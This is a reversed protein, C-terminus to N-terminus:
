RNNDDRGSRRSGGMGWRSRRNEEQKQFAEFADTSLLTKLEEDAEERVKEMDKQIQAYDRPKGDESPTFMKRYYPGLKDRRAEIIKSMEDRQYDTLGHDKAFQVVMDKDRQAARGAWMNGIAEMEKKRADAVAKSVAAELVKKEPVAAAGAVAVEDPEMMAPTESMARAPAPANAVVPPASRLDDVEQRLREVAAVLEEVRPDERPADSTHDIPDHRLATAALAGIAGAAVLGLILPLTKM